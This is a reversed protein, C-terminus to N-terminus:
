VMQEDGTNRCLFVSDSLRFMFDSRASETRFLHSYKIIVAKTTHLDM